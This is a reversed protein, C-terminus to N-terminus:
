KGRIKAVAAQMAAVLRVERAKEEATSEPGLGPPGSKIARDLQPLAGRAAPGLRAFGEVIAERVAIATGREALAPSLYPVAPGGLLLLRRAAYAQEGASKSALQQVLETPEDARKAPAGAPKASSLAGRLARVDAGAKAALGGFFRAKYDDGMRYHCWATGLLAEGDLRRDLTSVREYASIARAWQKGARYSLAVGMAARANKPDLKLASEYAAVAEAVRPPDFSHYVWGLNIFAAPDQGDPRATVKRLV